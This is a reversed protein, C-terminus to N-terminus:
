QNQDKQGGLINLDKLSGLVTDKFSDLEDAVSGAKAYLKEATDYSRHFQRSFFRDISKKEPNFAYLSFLFLFATAASLVPRAAPRLFDLLILRPKVAEEPIARLRGLLEPWVELEPFARLAERTERLASLLAACAPCAKLHAEVLAGDGSDLGNELFAPLMDLIRECNM